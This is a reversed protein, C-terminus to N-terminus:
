FKILLSNTFTFVTKDINVIPKADYLVMLQTNFAILKNISLRLNVDGIIRPAFFTKFRSQYYGMAILEISKSISTHMSLYSTSKIFHTKGEELEFKWYEDEYMVGSAFSLLTKDSTHLAVRLNAGALYRHIMGRTQDYQAQAFGETSLLRKHYFNIRSHVYGDSIVDKNTVKILNVKSVLMYSHLKSNIAHNSTFKFNLVQTQQKKYVFNLGVNGVLKHTSDSSLRNKEINLIQASLVLSQFSFFVIVLFRNM